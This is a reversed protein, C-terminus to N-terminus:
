HVTGFSKTFCRTLPWRAGETTGQDVYRSNMTTQQEAFTVNSSQHDVRLVTLPCDRLQPFHQVGRRVSYKRLVRLSDLKRSYNSLLSLGVDPRVRSGCVRPHANELTIGTACAKLDACASLMHKSTGCLSAIGIGIVDRTRRNSYARVPHNHPREM